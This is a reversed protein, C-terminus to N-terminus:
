CMSCIQYSRNRWCMLRTPTSSQVVEGRQQEQEKCSLASTSSVSLLHLSAYLWLCTTQSYPDIPPPDLFKSQLSASPYLTPDPGSPPQAAKWFNKSSKICFIICKWAFNKSTQSTDLWYQSPAATGEVDKFGGSDSAAYRFLKPTKALINLARQPCAM